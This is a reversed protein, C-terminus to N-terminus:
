SCRSARRCRRDGRARAHARDRLVEAILAQDTVLRDRDAPDDVGDRGHDHAAPLRLPVRVGLRALAGRPQGVRPDPHRAAPDAPPPVAAPQGRRRDPTCELQVNDAGVVLPKREAIWEAGDLSVGSGEAVDMAVPDPWYAMQGCRVFVADGERLETGQAEATAALVEAGIRFSQECHPVGLHKPVDLLVGRSVIPPLQPQTARSRASTASSRTLM